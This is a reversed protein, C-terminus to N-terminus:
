LGHHYKSRGRRSNGIRAFEASSLAVKEIRDWNRSFNKKWNQYIGPQHWHSDYLASNIIVPQELGKFWVRYVTMKESMVGIWGCLPPGGDM